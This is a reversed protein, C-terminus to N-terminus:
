RTEEPAGGAGGDLAGALEDYLRPLRPGPILTYDGAIEAIRGSRVATLGRAVDWDDARARAATADLPEVHLEVIVDPDRRLVEELGVTPYRLTADAFVNVAGLRTLLEDLFTGPGAVLMEAPRGAPRSLTVLVRAGSAVPRPALEDRWRRALDEGAEPVGCRDAISRMSAEVDSLTEAPVTLVEIGLRGLSRAVDDESPLLIALEPHLAVMQELNPDTLGGLRPKTDVEPPWHGYSGVGVVRPGLGLAFVIETLNPALTVLREPAGPVAPPEPETPGCGAAAVLVLAVLSGVLLSAAQSASARSRRRFVTM